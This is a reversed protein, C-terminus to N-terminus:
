YVSQIVSKVIMSLGVCVMTVLGMGCAFGAALIPTYM